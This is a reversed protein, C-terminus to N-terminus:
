RERRPPPGGAGGRAPGASGGRAGFGGGGGGGSRPRASDEFGRRVVPMAEAKREKGLLKKRRKKLAKEIAAGGKAELSRFRETAVVRKVDSRKMFFPTKGAAVKASEEKKLKRLVSTSHEKQVEEARQQQLKTLLAQVEARRAPERCAPSALEKKLAAIEGEKYEGLFRYNSRFLDENYSGSTADFRPDRTRSHAVAVVERFRGVPKNAPAETPAHKRRKKKRGDAAGAESRDDDDEDDEDSADRMARFGVEGDDDDDDDTDGDGRDATGGGGRGAPERSRAGGVSFTIDRSSSPAASFFGGPDRVRKAAPAAAGSDHDRDEPRRRPAVDGSSGRREDRSSLGRSEADDRSLHNASPDFNRSRKLGVGLSAAADGDTASSPPPRRSLPKPAAKPKQQALLAGLAPGDDWDGMTVINIVIGDPLPTTKTFLQNHYTEEYQSKENCVIVRACCHHYFKTFCLISGFLKPYILAVTRFCGIRRDATNPRMSTSQGPCTDAYPIQM